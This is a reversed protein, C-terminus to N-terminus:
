LYHTDGLEDATTRGSSALEAFGGVASLLAILVLDRLDFRVRASKANM